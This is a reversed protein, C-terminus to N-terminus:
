FSDPLRHEDDADFFSKCERWQELMLTRSPFGCVISTTTFPEEPYLDRYRRCYEVRQVMVYDEYSGHYFVKVLRNFKKRNVHLRMCLYTSSEGPFLYVQEDQMLQLFKDRSEILDEPDAEEDYTSTVIRGQNLFQEPDFVEVPMDRFNLLDHPKVLYLAPCDFFMGLIGICSVGIAGFICLLMAHNINEKLYTSQLYIRIIFYIGILSMSVVFLHVPRVPGEHFFRKVTKLSLDSKYAIYVLYIAGFILCVSSFINYVSIATFEFAVYLHKEVNTADEPITRGSGFFASAENWGLVSYNIVETIFLIAPISLLLYFLQKFEQGRCALAWATFSMWIAVSPVLYANAVYSVVIMGGYSHNSIVFSDCLFFFSLAMLLRILFQVALTKRRKMTLLSAYLAALFSPILYVIIEM